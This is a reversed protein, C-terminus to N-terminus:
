ERRYFSLSFLGSIVFGEGVSKKLYRNRARNCCSEVVQPLHKRLRVQYQRDKSVFTESTHKSPRTHLPTSKYRDLLLTIDRKSAEFPSLHAPTLSWSSQKTLAAKLSLPQTPMSITTATLCALTAGQSERLAHSCIQAFLSNLGNWSWSWLVSKSISYPSGSILQRSCPVFTSSISYFFIFM